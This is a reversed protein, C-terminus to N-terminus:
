RKAPSANADIRPLEVGAKLTVDVGREFRILNGSDIIEMRNANIVWDATKVEVPKESTIRSGKMDVLAEALRAQYGSSTTVLVNTQLLLQETKTNYVGTNATTEFTTKDQLEMNARIGQLEVVDTKTIDQAAVQATMEYQRKDTTFGAIRPAQMTIKTGSVVVSSLDVPAKALARLPKVWSAIGVAGGLALVICVPIGVRLFRVRFSHRRAARYVRADKGRGALAFVAPERDDIHPAVTL